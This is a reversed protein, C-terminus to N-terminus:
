LSDNLTKNTFTKSPETKIEKNTPLTFFILKQKYIKKSFYYIFNNIKNIQFLNFYGLNLNRPTTRVYTSFHFTKMNLTM